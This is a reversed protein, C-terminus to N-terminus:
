SEMPCCLTYEPPPCISRFHKEGAIMGAIYASIPYGMWIGTAYRAAFADNLCTWDRAIQLLLLVLLLIMCQKAKLRRILKLLPITLLWLLVMASLFWGPGNLDFIYPNGPIWSRVLLFDAALKLTLVSLTDASLEGRLCIEALSLVAFFLVTAAWLPYIKRIRKRCFSRVSPLEKKGTNSSAALYGSLTFFFM